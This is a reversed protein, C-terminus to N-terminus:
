VNACGRQWNDKAAADHLKILEEFIDKRYLEVVVGAM